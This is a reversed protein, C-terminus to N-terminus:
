WFGTKLEVLNLVMKVSDKISIKSTNIVVDYISPSDPYEIGFMNKFNLQRARDRTEIILEAKEDDVNYREAIRNVREPKDAVMSIKLTEKSDNLIISAGRGVMVVNGIQSLENVIARLKEFYIESSIEKNEYIVEIIDEYEETLYEFIDSGYYPDGSYFAAKEFINKLREFFRNGVVGEDIELVRKEDVNLADAIKTMIERDLYEYGLERAVMPGIMRGGGGTLGGITIVKM